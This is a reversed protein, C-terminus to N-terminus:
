DINEHIEIINGNNQCRITWQGASCSFKNNHLRNEGSEYKFLDSIIQIQPNDGMSAVFWIEYKDPNKEAVDLENNSMIFVIESGTSSKVEAFKENGKDDIYKLDYGAGAEGDPNINWKKANESVWEVNKYLKPNKLMIEYVIREAKAGREEQNSKKTFGTSNHGHQTSKSQCIEIPVCPTIRTTEIQNIDIDSISDGCTRQSDNERKKQQYIKELESEEGFYLMSDFVPDGLLENIISEDRTKKFKELNDQWFEGSDKTIDLELYKGFQATFVEQCDYSVDNKIDFASIGYRNLIEKFKKKEAMTKTKMSAFLGNKYAKKNESCLKELQKEYWPTLDLYFGSKNNFDSINIKLFKLLEILHPANNIASLDSFCLKDIQVQLQDGCKEGNFHTCAAIFREKITATMQLLDRPRELAELSGFDELILENRQDPTCGFATRVFSYVSDDQSGSRSRFIEAIASCFKINQKLAALCNCNKPACLYIKDNAILFTNEELEFCEEGYKVLAKKCIDVDINKLKAALNEYSEQKVAGESELQKLRKCLAYPLFERFDAKFEANSPHLEPIGEIEGKVSLPLVGFYEKILESHQRFHIDILKFRKQLANSINELLYRVDGIPEFQGTSKCYVKGEQLFKKYTPNSEDLKKSLGKKNLLNNYISRSIKGEKDKHPLELLLTYFTKTDLSAYDPSAGLEELLEQLFRIFHNNNGKPAAIFGKLDPTVLKPAFSTGIKESLLCQYPAYRLGDIEIWKSTAFVYRIYSALYQGPIIRSCKQQRRYIYGKSTSNEYKGLLANKLDSDSDIWEFIARTPATKLIVDLGDITSVEVSLFNANEIEDKTNYTEPYEVTNLPVEINEILYKKYNENPRLDIKRKVIQPFDRIGLLRLFNKVENLDKNEM